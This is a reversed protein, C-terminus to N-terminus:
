GLILSVTILLWLLISAIGIMIFTQPTPLSAFLWKWIGGRANVTEFVRAIDEAYVVSVVGAGLMPVFGLIVEIRSATGLDTGSVLSLIIRTLWYLGWLSLISSLLGYGVKQRQMISEDTLISVAAFGALALSVGFLLVLVAVIPSM